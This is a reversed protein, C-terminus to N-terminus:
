QPKGSNLKSIALSAIRQLWTYVKGYFATSRQLQFHTYDAAAMAATLQWQKDKEGDAYDAVGKIIIVELDPYNRMIRTYLAWGEMEGGKAFKFQEQIKQKFDADDLLFPGSALQGVIVKAARGGKTCQFHWGTDDKCFINRLTARTGIVDGRPYIGDGQFRPRDGLDAIQTAVLVDCVKHADRDMGYAVGVGLLAKTNPFWSLVKRVDDECSAGQETWAIAAKYGAFVGLAIKMEDKNPFQVARGFLGDSKTINPAKM